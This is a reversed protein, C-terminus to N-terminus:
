ADKTVTAVPEATVVEAPAPAAAVPAAVVPAPAAAVPAPAAPLAAVPEDDSKDSMGARFEKISRGVSRGADPLRKPGLIVLAIVLVIIIELPGINPM